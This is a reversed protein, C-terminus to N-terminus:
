RKAIGEAKNSCNNFNCVFFIKMFVCFWLWRYLNLRRFLPFFAGMSMFIWFMCSRLFFTILFDNKRLFNCMLLATFMCSFREGFDRFFLRLDFASM